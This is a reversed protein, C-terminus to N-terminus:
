AADRYYYKLLGGLSDRCRIPGEGRDSGEVSESPFLIVNEKTENEM